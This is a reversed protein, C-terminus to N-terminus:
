LKRLRDLEMAHGGDLFALPVCATEGCRECISACKVIECVRVVMGINFFCRCCSPKVCVELEGERPLRGGTM